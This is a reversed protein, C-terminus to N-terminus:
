DAGPDWRGRSTLGLSWESISKPGFGSRKPLEPKQETIYFWESRWKMNIDPAEMEVWQAKLKQCLIPDDVQAALADISKQFAKIGDNLTMSFIRQLLSRSGFPQALFLDLVGTMVAAPNAIRIVNKM